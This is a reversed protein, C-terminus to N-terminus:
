AVTESPRLGRGAVGSARHSYSYPIYKPGLRTGMHAM